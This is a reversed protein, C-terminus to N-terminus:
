SKSGPNGLDINSDQRGLLNFQALHESQRKRQNRTEEDIFQPFPYDSLFVATVKLYHIYTKYVRFGKVLSYHTHIRHQNIHHDALYPRLPSM